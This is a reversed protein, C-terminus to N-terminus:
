SNDGFKCCTFGSPNGLLVSVAYGKPAGSNVGTNLKGHLPRHSM